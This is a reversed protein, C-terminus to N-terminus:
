RAKKFLPLCILILFLYIASILFMFKIHPIITILYDNVFLSASVLIETLFSMTSLFQSKHKYGYITENSLSAIMGSLIGIIVEIGLFLLLSGYRNNSFFSATYFLTITMTSVLIILKTSVKNTIITFLESGIIVAFILLTYVLSLNFGLRDVYLISWYILIFQTGCDFGANILLLIWFSRDHLFIKFFRSIHASVKENTVTVDYNDEFGIVKNWISVFVPYLILGVMSFYIPAKINLGFLWTGFNGGILTAFNLVTVQHGMLNSNSNINKAEQLGTIYALLTGSNLALGIGYFLEAGAYCIVGDGAILIAFSIAIIIASMNLIKLRGYKDSLIGAPLLGVLIGISQFSKISSITADSIGNSSYYLSFIGSMSSRFMTFLATFILFTLAIRRSISMKIM